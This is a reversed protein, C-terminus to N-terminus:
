TSHGIIVRCVSIMAMIIGGSRKEAPGALITLALVGTVLSLVVPTGRNVIHRHRRETEAAAMREALSRCCSPMFRSLHSMAVIIGLGALIVLVAWELVQAVKM